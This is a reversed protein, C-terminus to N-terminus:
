SLSFRDALLRLTGLGESKLCGIHIEGGDKANFLVMYPDILLPNKDLWDLMM